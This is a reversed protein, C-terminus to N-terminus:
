HGDVCVLRQSLTPVTRDWDQKVTYFRVGLRCISIKVYIDEWISFVKIARNLFIHYYTNKNVM